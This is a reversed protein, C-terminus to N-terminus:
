AAADAPPPTAPRLQRLWLFWLSIAAVIFIVPWIELHLTEFLGPWRPGVLFLSVIRVLNLAHLLAVGALVGWLKAVLSAPFALVCAALLWSPEIADCGRRINVAYTASRISIGEARTDHGLANLVSSGAAANAHMYAPFAVRDSWPLLSAAYFVAMLLAFRLTFVLM